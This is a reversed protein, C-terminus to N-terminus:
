LKKKQTAALRLLEKSVVVAEDILDALHWWGNMCLEVRVQARKDPDAVFEKAYKLAVESVQYQQTM